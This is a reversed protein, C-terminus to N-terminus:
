EETKEQNNKLREKHAIIHQFYRTKIEESLEAYESLVYKTHEDVHINDDDIEEIEVTGSRMKENEMQAKEEQLRSIGKQYDLDKYGLLDLVKSKIVPRLKGSEDFLLGSSYLNYIMEKKQTESYMFENENDVYVDDSRVSERSAFCIRAKNFTDYFKIVKVGSLFQAFLRVVHKAIKVYCNRINDAPMLLRENDQEVLIQLASGSSLSANSSSSSVDSVGSVIVFENILKNEEESFDTPMTMESMIEPAKAGQRYVLIKGPSLGEQQLDDVDVSGDEVTLIGMSLRNLFEHKRNKVANYSRQLPILREVISTGFFNGANSICDQKVFPFTRKKDKGNLYPLEGYYLLKGDAVTIIRGNPFEESPKEYKEIVIVSNSVTASIEGSGVLTGNKKVLNFVGIENGSISIGYKEKVTNVPVARAHIISKCNELDETYMNDPFIEFPSVPLIEVGGEYVEKGDIVGMKGGADNNWIIKYFGTGCSESWVTVKKVTQIIENNIFSENILKEAISAGEIDDDNDSKPRVHITPNIKSFKALRTEILPAIHNFVEKNQWFFDSDEEDIEGRANVKCYQNGALFNMNLQWQRETQIREKRRKEFDNEVEAVLDEVFRDREKQENQKKIENQNQM